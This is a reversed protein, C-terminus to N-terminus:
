TNFQFYNNVMCGLLLRRLDSLHLMRGKEEESWQEWKHTTRHRVQVNGYKDTKNDIVGNRTNFELLNTNLWQMEQLM